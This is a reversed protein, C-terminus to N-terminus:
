ADPGGSSPPWSAYEEIQPCDMAEGLIVDASSRDAWTQDQDTALLPEADAPCKNPIIVKGIVIEVSFAKEPVEFQVPVNKPPNKMAPQLKKMTKMRQGTRPDFYGRGDLMPFVDEGPWGERFFDLYEKFFVPTM